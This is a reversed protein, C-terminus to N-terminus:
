GRPKRTQRGRPKHQVPKEDAPPVDKAAPGTGPSVQKRPRGPPRPASGPEEGEAVDFAQCTLGLADALALVTEWAPKREGRELKVIGQTHLGAREALQAQTLGAHERLARLRAGFRDARNVAVDEGERRV